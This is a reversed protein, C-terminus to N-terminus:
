AKFAVPLALVLVLPVALSLKLSDCRVALPV